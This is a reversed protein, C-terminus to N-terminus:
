STGQNVVGRYFGQERSLEKAGNTKCRAEKPPKGQALHYEIARVESLDSKLPEDKDGSTEM